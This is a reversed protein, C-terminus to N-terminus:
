NVSAFKELTKDSVEQSIDEGYNQSIIDHLDSYDIDRINNNIHNYLYESFTNARLIVIPSGKIDELVAPVYRPTLVITYKAGIKERHSRLRGSSLNSLKNKTSKADVAFKENTTLYIAEIDTQGAGGIGIAEVNYFMNFGEVLVEEFLYAEKGKNNEAYREILKPLKLLKATAQDREEGIYNLLEEPYFNYIEKIVDVRLRESDNLKLPNDDFSYSKLLIDVYDELAKNLVVYGRTVSRLTPKTTSKRVPHALKCILEGDYATWLDAKELLKKTYYEWEYAANVFVHEDEKFLKEIQSDDKQRFELLRKVLTEYSEGNMEQVQVIYYEVEYNYLKYDLRSDRLLKFILRFPYLQFQNPTSGHPHEYQMAYLMTTFIFKLKEPNTVHKLFLNGLPSFIFRKQKKVVEEYGFMYYELTNIRHNIADLPRKPNREKYLDLARLREQIQYHNEVSLNSMCKEKIDIAVAKILEYNSTHRYLIWKPTEITRTM